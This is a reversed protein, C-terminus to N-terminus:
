FELGTYNGINAYAIKGQAQIPKVLLASNLVVNVVQGAGIKEVERLGLGGLSISGVKGQRKEGTDELTLVVDGNLPARPHKRRSIGFFSVLEPIEFVNMWKEMGNAWVRCGGIIGNALIFNQLEKANMPGKQAGLHEVYWASTKVDSKLSD